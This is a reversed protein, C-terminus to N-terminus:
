PRSGNENRGRTSSTARPAPSAVYISHRRGGRGARRHTAHFGALALRKEFGPAAAESWVAFVGRPTLARHARELAQRGYLAHTAERPTGRPGEFLDLAIADFRPRQGGAAQAISAAVDAIEVAVRPDGVASGTLIALPGRCWRVVVEELEAVTVAAGVPLLDLAARLTYGMGLGGILVRPAAREAIPECAARALAQESR